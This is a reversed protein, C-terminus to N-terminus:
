HTNRVLKAIFFGGSYENPFLTEEKELAFGPHNKIFYEIQKENEKKNLTCTSYVLCGNEKVHSAASALIESQIKILSDMDESKMRLKIDPKRALVGYGSCPVDCLVRDYLGLDLIKTADKCYAHIIDVHLRKADKKILQVRHEHIDLCDITGRNNMFQALAMAKTGPASCVDLVKEECKVDLTRAIQYSGPDQASMYGKVYYPHSSIQEGIYVYLESDKIKEIYPDKLFNEENILLSNRRVVIPLTTNSHMAIKEATDLGYQSCWMRILWPKISNMIAIREVEDEPLKVENQIVKHLIANVFGASKSNVKKALNVAENCIAYDPVKDLFKIQYVSMVLLVDIKSEIKKRNTFQRYIYQCYDYNQITGYFIRTCLTQDKKPVEKLHNKLYLNSYTGELVVSCLAKFVWSRM